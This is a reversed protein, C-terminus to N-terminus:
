SGIKDVFKKYLAALWIPQPMVWWGALLGAGFGLLLDVTLVM